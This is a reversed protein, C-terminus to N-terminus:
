SATFRSKVRGLKVTFLNQPTVSSASSPAARQMKLGDPAVVLAYVRDNRKEMHTRLHLREELLQRLMAPVQDKQEPSFRADLMYRRSDLWSPGDILFASRLSTRAAASSQLRMVRAISPHRYWPRLTDRIGQILRRRFDCGEGGHGREFIRNRFYAAPRAAQTSGM